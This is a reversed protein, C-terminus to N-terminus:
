YTKPKWLNRRQEQSRDKLRQMLVLSKWALLALGLTRLSLALELRGRAQEGWFDAEVQVRAKPWLGEVLPQAARTFGYLVGTFAPDPSALTAELDLRELHTYRKLDSGMKALSSRELLLWSFAWSRSRKAPHSKKSRAKVRLPGRLVELGFWSLGFEQMPMVLWFGLGLWRAQLTLAQQTLAAQIHLFSALILTILALLFITIVLAQGM